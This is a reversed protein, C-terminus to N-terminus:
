FDCFCNPLNIIFGIGFQHANLKLQEESKGSSILVSKGLKYNAYIATSNSIPYQVGFSGRLFLITNNFEEEGVLNYVDNNITQNGRIIFESALSGKFFFSLDRSQFLRIGLGAQLGLYSVDWAFYNDVSSESGIAGYNNYSAGISLFMTKSPNVSQRYGMGIYSKSHSLLNNLRNGNSNRYDFSSVTAGYEMYLQQAFGSITTLFIFCVLVKLRM